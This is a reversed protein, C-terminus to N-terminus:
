RTTSVAMGSSLTDLSIRDPPNGEWRRGAVPRVLDLSRGAPRMPTPLLITSTAWSIPLLSDRTALHNLSSHRLSWFQAEHLRGKWAVASARRGRGGDARGIQTDSNPVRLDRDRGAGGGRMQGLHQASHPSRLLRAARWSGCRGRRRASRSGCPYPRTPLGHRWDSRGRGRRGRSRRRATACRRCASVRTRSPVPGTGVMFRISRLRRVQGFGRSPGTARVGTCIFVSNLPMAQRAITGARCCQGEKGEPARGGARVWRGAAGAM